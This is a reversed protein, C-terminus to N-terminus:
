KFVDESSGLNKYMEEYEPPYPHKGGKPVPQGTDQSRGAQQCTKGSDQEKSLWRNIFSAIGRRTKRRTPNSDLWAIMRKLEQEVDVAPYTEKWMAIKDLPVDYFSKDNLPLLIGSPNPAPKDPESCVTNINDKGLRDKGLRDKGISVNAPCKDTMQRDNTQCIAKTKSYYSPKATKVRADPVIQLLLDKYISDIKRDARINNNEMWDDIFVVLDENLISVFGKGILVRLDDETSSTMCMVPYAEVVGDDDARMGLHFYLNQSSPPMKLFRASETIRISFMRRSAM